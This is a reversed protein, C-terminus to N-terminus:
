PYIIGWKNGFTKVEYSVAPDSTQRGAPYVRFTYKDCTKGTLQDTACGNVPLYVIQLKAALGQVGLCEPSFLGGALVDVSDQQALQTAPQIAQTADGKPDVYHVELPHGNIGGTSNTQQVVLETSIRMLAGEIAGVGTVDDLVGVKIPSGTPQAATTAQGSTAPAGTPANGPAPSTCGAVVWGLLGLTVMARSIATPM